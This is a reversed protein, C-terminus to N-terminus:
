NIRTPSGLQRGGGTSPPGLLLDVSSESDSTGLQNPNAVGIPSGWGESELDETSEPNPSGIPLGSGEPTRRLYRRDGHLPQPRRNATGVGGGLNSTDETPVPSM